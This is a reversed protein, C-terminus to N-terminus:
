EAGGIVEEKTLGLYDALKSASIHYTFHRSGEPKWCVGIPLAACQMGAQVSIVSMNLLEAARKVTVRNKSEPM